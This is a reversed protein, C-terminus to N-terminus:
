CQWPLCKVLVQEPNHVTAQINVSVYNGKGSLRRNVNSDAIPGLVDEVALRIRDVFQDGGSGIAKFSRQSPYKNFQM